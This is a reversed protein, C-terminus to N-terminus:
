AYISNADEHISRAMSFNICSKSNSVSALSVISVTCLLTRGVLLFSASKNHVVLLQYITRVSQFHNCIIM